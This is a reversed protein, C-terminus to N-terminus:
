AVVRGRDGHLSLREALKTSGTIDVFMFVRQERRPRHYRGMVYRLLVGPGLLRDLHKLFIIVLYMVFAAGMAAFNQPLAEVFEAITRGEILGLVFGVGLFIAALATVYAVSKLLVGAWFPLRRFRKAFRSSELVILPVALLAGIFVVMWPQGAGSEPSLYFTVTDWILSVIVFFVIV